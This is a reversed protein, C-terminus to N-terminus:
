LLFLRILGLPLVILLLTALTFLVSRRFDVGGLYLSFLSLVLWYVFSSGAFLIITMGVSKFILSGILLSISRIFLLLLNLYFSLNLKQKILFIYSIPSGAFVFLLWPCMYSAIRGSSEWGESFIFSFIEPGWFMVVSFPIIGIMLLTKYTSFTLESLEKNQTKIESAQRYYVEAMAQGLFRSPQSLIKQPLSFLGVVTNNFVAKLVYVPMQISVENMLESPMRFVPFSKYEMGRKYAEKLNKMTSKEHPTKNKWVLYWIPILQSICSGLVLGFSGTHFIGFGTQLGSLSGSRIINSRSVFSYKKDRIAWNQFIRFSGFLFSYVPILWFIFRSHRTQFFAGGWSNLFLSIIFCLITVVVSLMLSFMLLQRAENEYKPLVLSKEYGGTVIISLISATTLFLYFVGFEEPLFLRTLVPVFSLILVQSIASGSVLTWVDKTFIINLISDKYRM